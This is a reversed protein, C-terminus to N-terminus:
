RKWIVSLRSKVKNGVSASRPRGATGMQSGLDGGVMPYADFDDPIPPPTPPVMLSDSSGRFEGLTDRRVRHAFTWTGSPATPTRGEGGLTYQQQDSASSTEAASGSPFLERDLHFMSRDDESERGGIVSVSESSNNSNLSSGFSSVSGLRKRDSYNADKSSAERDAGGQHHHHQSHLPSSVTSSSHMLSKFFQKANNGTKRHTHSSHHHNAGRIRREMEQTFTGGSLSSESRSLGSFETLQKSTGHPFKSGKRQPPVPSSITSRSFDRQLADWDTILTEPPKIDMLLDVSPAAALPAVPLLESSSQLVDETSRSATGYAQISSRSSMESSRGVPDSEARPRPSLTIKPNFSYENLEDGILAALYEESEAHLSPKRLLTEHPTNMFEAHRAKLTRCEDVLGALLPIRPAQELLADMNGDFFQYLCEVDKRPLPHLRTVDSPSLELPEPPITSIRDIFGRMSTINQAIFANCQVMYPEKSGFDTLNALNQLIKAVLTFTRSTPPDPHDPILNFLKPHLIAPCFFRLFIFGSIAAYPISQNSEVDQPWKRDVEMRIHAFVERLVSPCQEYSSSIAVWFDDTVGLLRDWNEALLEPRAIRTADVECHMNTSYVHKVLIGITSSLYDMGVMKMFQDVAKTALTNGRFVINPNETQRIEDSLLNKLAAVGDGRATMINMFVKAVSERQMGCVAGLAKVCTLSKETVLDVFRLYQSRPLLQQTNSHFGIRISGSSPAEPKSIQPLQKIPYWQETRSSAKPNFLNISVYGIDQSGNFIVVRLRNYHPCVNVFEFEEGWFPATAGKKTTRAQKVDDLLAICYVSMDSNPAPSHLDKAEMVSLQFSRIVAYDEEENESVQSRVGDKERLLIGKICCSAFARLDSMWNQKEVASEAILNYTEKGRQTLCIIQFCHPRAFYSNDLDHIASHRLPLIEIPPTDTNPSDFGLLTQAERLFVFYRPQWGRTFDGRKLLMRGTRAPQPISSPFVGEFAHADEDITHCQTFADMDGEIDIAKYDAICNDFSELITGQYTREMHLTDGLIKKVAQFRGQENQRLDKYMTPLVHGYYQEQCNKCIDGFVLLVENAADAKESAEVARTTLKEM